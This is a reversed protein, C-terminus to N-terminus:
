PHNRERQFANGINDRSDGQSNHPASDSGANPMIRAAALASLTRSTCPSRCGVPSIDARSRITAIIAVGSM